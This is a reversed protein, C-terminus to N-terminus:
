SQVSAQTLVTDLYKILPDTSATGVIAAIHGDPRVLVLRAGDVQYARYAAQESAPIVHTTVSASYRAALQSALEDTDRDDVSFGLVHYGAGHTLDLVSRAGDRTPKIPAYPARDGPKLGGTSPVVARNSRYSIWLQSFMHFFMRRVPALRSIVGVVRTAVHTRMWMAVANNATEMKFGLDTRKLVTEAIPRRESEYTDLLWEPAEGNVVQALKWALNIADGVGLNLGQGGAPNHIHAADGVLFANGVRFRSALRSHFRFMSAWIVEGLHADVKFYDDFWRQLDAHDLPAYSEHSPGGRQQPARHLEPPVVGFLRYRGSALPLIGVFGGCTLNLRMGRVGLDADLTVDALMGAQEYTEGDFEQGLLRRITSSAGDAGVLWRTAVTALGKESAVQVRVGDDTDTLDRVTSNWEVIVEHEGLAEVLVRETEFQELALAYPFRTQAAVGEGALPMDGAHRGSEHIAVDTIPLGRAVAAEAVGLLDLFELTRAHVIAARAQEVPGSKRDVIRVRVGHQVLMLATCLGTPGAGVVLADCDHKDRM